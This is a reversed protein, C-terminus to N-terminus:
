EYMSLQICPIAPVLVMHVAVSPAGGPCGAKPPSPCAPRAILAAKSGARTLNPAIVAHPSLSVQERGDMSKLRFGAAYPLGPLDCTQRPSSSRCWSRAKALLRFYAIPVKVACRHQPTIVAWRPRGVFLFCYGREGPIRPLYPSVADFRFLFLLRAPVAGRYDRPM